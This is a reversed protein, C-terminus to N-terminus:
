QTDEEDEPYGLYEFEDESDREDLLTYKKEEEIM